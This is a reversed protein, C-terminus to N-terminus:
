KTKRRITLKILFLVAFLVWIYWPIISLIKIFGLGWQFSYSLIDKVDQVTPPNVMVTSTFLTFIGM